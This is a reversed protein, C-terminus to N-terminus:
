CGGLKSNPRGSLSISVCRPTVAASSPDADITFNTPTSALRGDRTFTVVGASASDTISLNTYPDQQRLIEVTGTTTAITWGDQWGSGVQTMSVNNNRKIAESRTMILATVVDFSATKVRQTRIFDRFSPLAIGALISVIAITIMLEGLTFGSM